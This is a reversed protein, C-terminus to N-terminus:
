ESKLIGFRNQKLDLVVMYEDYFLANGILGDTDILGAPAFYAVPNRVQLKGFKLVGKVPAGILAVEEGWSPATVRINSKETGKLGTLKQWLKKSTMIPFLSAGTDFFFERYSVGAIQLTVFLRENRRELDVFSARSLLDRLADNLSDALYFRMKPFDLLLIKGVLFEPGITGILPHEEKEDLSDGFDKNMFFRLSDFVCNGLTGSLRVFNEDGEDQYALYNLQNFPIGYVVSTNSGTDLQM